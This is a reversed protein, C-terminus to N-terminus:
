CLPACEWVTNNAGIMRKLRDLEANLKQSRSSSWSVGPESWIKLVRLLGQKRDAKLEVRGVFRDGELLPYVYYGWIRKAAPVFIEIRYDFGFLKSLRNRDRVVPDFPSLIRLRSTPAKLKVLRDEINSLALANVYRGEATELEVEVLRRSNQVWVKVEQASVACWFRQIDGPSGFGLRGLAERCLWDIQQKDTLKKTRHEPPIVREALDYFKIFKERHSTALEGAYWMHDLAQKHPPRAWMEKPNVIKSNFSHTSLPGERKIRNKITRMDRKNLPTRYYDIRSAKERMRRFQRQWVPYFEVPLVSADHTFHEFISREGGLLKNLMPERYNQNRSWIIHHHARTVNRITDLQVFGLEKIIGLVDISGTPSSALGHTNLWLRRATRNDIRIM